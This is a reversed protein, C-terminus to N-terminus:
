PRIEVIHKKNINTKRWKEYHKGNIFSNFSIDETVSIWDMNFKDALEEFTEKVEIERTTTVIVM